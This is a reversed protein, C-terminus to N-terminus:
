YLVIYYLISIIIHVKPGSGHARAEESSESEPGAATPIKGEVAPISHYQYTNITAKEESFVTRAM